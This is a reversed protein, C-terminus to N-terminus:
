CSFSVVLNSSPVNLDNINYSTHRNLIIWILKM